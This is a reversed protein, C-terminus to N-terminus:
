RAAAPPPHGGATLSSSWLVPSLPRTLATQLRRHAGSFPRWCGTRNPPCRSRCHHDAHNQILVTLSREHGGGLLPKASPVGGPCSARGPGAPGASRAGAAAAYPRYLGYICDDSLARALVETM